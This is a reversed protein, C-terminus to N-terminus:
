ISINSSNDENFAYTHLADREEDYVAVAIRHIFPFDVALETRIQQLHKNIQSHLGVEANLLSKVVNKEPYYKMIILRQEIM